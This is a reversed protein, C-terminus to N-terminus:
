HLEIKFLVKDAEVMEQNEICIEVVTGNVDSELENFNKMAEVICLVQGKAVKDGVSVFPPADAKPSSYFTGVLPSKIEYYNDSGASTDAGASEPATDNQQHAQIDTNVAPIPASSGGQQLPFQQVGSQNFQLGPQHDVVPYTSGSVTIDQKIGGKRIEITKSGQKIIVESIDNEKMSELIKNIESQKM